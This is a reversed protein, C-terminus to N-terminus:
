TMGSVPLILAQATQKGYANSVGSKNQNWNVGLM